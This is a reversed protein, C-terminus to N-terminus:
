PTAWSVGLQGGQHHDLFNLTERVRAGVSRRSSGFLTIDSVRLGLPGRQHDLFRLTLLAPGM